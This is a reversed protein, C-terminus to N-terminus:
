WQYGADKAWALWTEIILPVNGAASKPVPNAGTIERLAGFWHTQRAEMDRLLLPVVAAGLGIVERYAPHNNRLTTSSHHAVAKEWACALRHFHEELTETPRTACPRVLIGDRTREITVTGHLGLSETWESPLRIRNGPEIPTEQAPNM